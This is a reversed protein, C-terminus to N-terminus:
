HIRFSHSIKVFGEDRPAFRAVVDSHRVMIGTFVKEEGRFVDITLMFMLANDFDADTKLTYGITYM